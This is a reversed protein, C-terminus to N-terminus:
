RPAKLITNLDLHKAIKTWRGKRFRLHAAFKREIPLAAGMM